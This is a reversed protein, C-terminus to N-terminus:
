NKPQIRKYYKKFIPNFEKRSFKYKSSSTVPHLALFMYTRVLSRDRIDGASVAVSEITDNEHSYFIERIKPYDKACLADFAYCRVIPKKHSTLYILEETSAVGLLKLYKNWSGSSFIISDHSLEEVVLKTQKSLEYNEKKSCSILM